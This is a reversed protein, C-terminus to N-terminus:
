RNKLEDKMSEVLADSLEKAPVKAWRQATDYEPYYRRWRDYGEPSIEGRRLKKAQQAWAVLMENLRAADNGKYPNVYLSVTSNESEVTLGYLDELTFLTHMLGIYTDIDPVNLAQPSVDLEKALADIM